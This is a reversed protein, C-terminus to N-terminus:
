KTSFSFDRLAFNYCNAYVDNSNRTNLTMDLAKEHHLKETKPGSKLTCYVLQKPIKFTTSVAYTYPLSSLIQTSYDTSFTM